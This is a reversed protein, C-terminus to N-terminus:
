LATVGKLLIDTALDAYDRRSIGKRPQHWLFFWNLMGFLAMTVPTLLDARREFREPATRQIADAFLAVLTRQIAALDAQQKRSLAGMAELQLRHVADAGRYGQLLAQVLARLDDEPSGGVTKLPTLRTLLGELHTSLIDYLLAEKSPYYHYILSKSIGCAEAVLAMSSREYGQEAFVRTAASLIAGRKEDHDKAIPRAM